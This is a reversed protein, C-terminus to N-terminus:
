PQRRIGPEGMLAAYVIKLEPLRLNFHNFVNVVTPDAKFACGSNGVGGGNSSSSSNGGDGSNSGDGADGTSTSGNINSNGSGIGSGSDSGNKGNYTDPESEDLLLALRFNVAQMTIVETLTPM